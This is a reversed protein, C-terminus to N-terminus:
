LKRLFEPLAANQFPVAKLRATLSWYVIFFIHAKDGSSDIDYSSLTQFLPTGSRNGLRPAACSDLGRRLGHTAPM